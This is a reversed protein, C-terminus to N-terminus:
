DCYHKLICLWFLHAHKRVVINNVILKLFFFLSSLECVLGSLNEALLRKLIWRHMYCLFLNNRLANIHEGKKQKKCNKKTCRDRDTVPKIQVYPCVIIDWVSTHGYPCVYLIRAQLKGWTWDMCLEFQGCVHSLNVASM